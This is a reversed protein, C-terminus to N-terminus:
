GNCNRNELCQKQNMTQLMIQHVIFDITVYFNQMMLNFRYFVGPTESPELIKGQGFIKLVELAENGWKTLDIRMTRGYDHDDWIAYNHTSSLLERCSQIERTHSYRYNM